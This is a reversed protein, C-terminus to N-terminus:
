TRKISVSKPRGPAGGHGNACSVGSPTDFQIGGCVSCETELLNFGRRELDRDYAERESVTIQYVSDDWDPEAPENWLPKAGSGSPWMVRTPNEIEYKRCIMGVLASLARGFGEPLEVLIPFEIEIRRIKSMDGRQRRAPISWLSSRGYLGICKAVERLTCSLCSKSEGWQVLISNTEM